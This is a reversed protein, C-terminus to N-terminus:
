TDGEAEETALAQHRAKDPKKGRCGDKSEDIDNEDGARAVFLPARDLCWVQQNPYEEGENPSALSIKQFRPVQQLKFVDEPRGRAGGKVWILEKEVGISGNLHTAGRVQDRFWEWCGRDNRSVWQGVQIALRNSPIGPNTPHPGIDV